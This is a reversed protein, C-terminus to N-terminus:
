LAAHADKSMIQRKGYEHRSTGTRRPKTIPITKIGPRHCACARRQSTARRPLSCLLVRFGPKGDRRGRGTVGVGEWRRLAKGDGRRFCPDLERAAAYGRVGCAGTRTRRKPGVFSSREKCRTKGLGRSEQKRLFSSGFRSKQAKHATRTRCQSTRLGFGHMHDAIGLTHAKWCWVPAPPFFASGASPSGL